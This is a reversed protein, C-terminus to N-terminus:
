AFLLKAHRAEVRVDDAALLVEGLRGLEEFRLRALRVPTGDIEDVLGLRVHRQGHREALVGELHGRRLDAEAGDQLGDGLYVDPRVPVGVHDIGLVLEHGVWVTPQQALLAIDGSEDLHLRRPSIARAGHGVGRHGHHSVTEGAPPDERRM